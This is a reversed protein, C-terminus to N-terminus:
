VGDWQLCVYREIASFIPETHYQMNHLLIIIYYITIYNHITASLLYGTHASSHSPKQRPHSYIIRVITVQHNMRLPVM